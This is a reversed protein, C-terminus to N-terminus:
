YREAEHKSDFTLGDCVTPQNGYKRRKPTPADPELGAPLPTGNRACIRRIDAETYELSM